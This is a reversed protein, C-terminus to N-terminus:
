PRLRSCELSHDPRCRRLVHLSSIEGFESVTVKYDRHLRCDPKLKAAYIHARPWGNQSALVWVVFSHDGADCAYTRGQLDRKLEAPGM